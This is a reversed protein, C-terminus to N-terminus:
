ILSTATGRAFIRADRQRIPSCEAGRRLASLLSFDM